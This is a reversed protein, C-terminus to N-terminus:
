RREWLEHVRRRDHRVAGAIRNARMRDARSRIPEDAVIRVFLYHELGEGVVPMTSWAIGADDDLHNGVVRHAPELEALPRDIDDGVIQRRVDHMLELAAAIEADCADGPSSKEYM